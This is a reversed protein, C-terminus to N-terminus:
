RILKPDEGTKQSAGVPVPKSSSVTPTPAPLQHTRFWVVVLLFVCLLLTIGVQCLPSYNRWGKTSPKRKHLTIGLREIQREYHDEEDRDAQNRNQLNTQWFVHVLLLIAALVLSAWFLNNGLIASKETFLIGTFTATATWIGFSFKWEFERRRDYRTWAGAKLSALADFLNKEETTLGRISPQEEKGNGVPGHEPAAKNGSHKM